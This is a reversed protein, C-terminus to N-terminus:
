VPRRLAPVRGFASYSTVLTVAVSTTGAQTSTHVTLRTVHGAADVGVTVQAPETGAPIGAAKAASASLTGAVTTAQATSSAISGGALGRLVAILSATPDAVKRPTHLRSWKGPVKRVYTAAKVRVVQTSTRGVTLTYSVGQRRVVAGVLRTTVPTKAAVTETADFRYSADAALTSEAKALVQAVRTDTTASSVPSPSTPSTPAAATKAGSSCAVAACLTALVLALPAAAPRAGRSLSSSM